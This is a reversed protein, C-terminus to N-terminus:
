ADTQGAAKIGGDPITEWKLKGSAIAVENLRQDIVAFINLLKFWAVRDDETHQMFSATYQRFAEENMRRQSAVELQVEGLQKTAADFRQRGEIIWNTISDMLLSQSAILPKLDTQTHLSANEAVLAEKERILLVKEERLREQVARQVGLEASAAAESTASAQSVERWHNREEVLKAKSKGQYLEIGKLAVFSALLLALLINPWGSSWWTTDLLLFLM